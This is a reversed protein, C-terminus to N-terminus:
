FLGGRKEGAVKVQNIFERPLTTKNFESSTELYQKVFVGWLRKDTPRPYYPDNWWFADVIQKLGSDSEDFKKCQNFDLLWVSVTKQKFDTIFHDATTEKGAATIDSLPPARIEPTGGLVFEVDNGDVGAKWHLIALTQALAKAFITTDLRLYEMQDVHLPFNRLRVNNATMPTDKSKRGLYIRVLCDKNDAQALFGSKKVRIEKPCLADVIASRVPFPLPFIRESVLGYGFQLRVEDDPFRTAHGSWFQDSEPTVWREVEPVNVNNAIRLNDPLSDFANKVLCHMQFDNYLSDLKGSNPLKIVTATGRLSYVIGCQGQGISRFLEQQSDEQAQMNAEALASSTSIATKTSLMRCLVEQPKMTHMENDGITYQPIGLYDRLPDSSGSRMDERRDMLNFTVLSSLNSFM